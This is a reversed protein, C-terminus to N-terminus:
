ILILLIIIYDKKEFIRYFFEAQGLSEDPNNRTYGDLLLDNYNFNLNNKCNQIIEYSLCKENHIYTYYIIKAFKILFNNIKLFEEIYSKLFDREQGYTGVGEDITKNVKEIFPKYKIINNEIIEKENKTLTYKDISITECDKFSCKKCFNKKCKNCLLSIKENHLLCISDEQNIKFSSLKNDIYEYLDEEIEHNNRCKFLLKIDYTSLYFNILPILNCKQCRIIDQKKDLIM